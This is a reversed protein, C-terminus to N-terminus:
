RVHGRGPEGRVPLDLLVCESKAPFPYSQIIKPFLFVAGAICIVVTLFHIIRRFVSTKPLNEPISFSMYTELLVWASFIVVLLTKTYAKLVATFIVIIFLSYIIGAAM